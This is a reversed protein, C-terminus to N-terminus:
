APLTTRVSGWILSRDRAAWEAEDGDSPEAFSRLVCPAEPVGARRVAALLREAYGPSAGDLVNSLAFGHFTAPEVRELFDVADAQVLEVPVPAPQATEGLLLARAFPNTRNPHRAFGRALRRRIALDFRPPLARVLDPPRARRLAPPSLLVALVARFRITDLRESWFRAQEEIAGLDCFRRLAHRTWGALPALSLLISLMREAAGDRTPAGDIRARVYEVQAPNVDVATVAAGRAGLAFATDGAAAICFLTGTEPLVETEIAWDEHGRGFVLGAGGWASSM